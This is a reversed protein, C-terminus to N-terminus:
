RLSERKREGIHRNSRSFRAYLWCYLFALVPRLCCFTWTAFGLRVGPKISYTLFLRRGETLILMSKMNKKTEQTGHQRCLCLIEPSFAFGGRELLHLWFEMDTLQNYHEDFGRGSLDRRFMVATPEGIVNGRILMNRISEPGSLTEEKDSFALYTSNSNDSLIGRACAALSVTQQSDLLGSLRALCEPELLDDACLFQVYEGTAFSLCRNWNPVMGLNSLNRVYRIRADRSTYGAVISETDDDSANDSIIVEFDQLTQRLVSEIAEGIFRGYNYTPICVSVKVM